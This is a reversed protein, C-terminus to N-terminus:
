AEEMFRPLPLLARAQDLGPAMRAARAHVKAAESPNRQVVVGPLPTSM